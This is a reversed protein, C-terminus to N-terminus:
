RWIPTAINLILSFFVRLDQCRVQIREDLEANVITERDSKMTGLNIHTYPVFKLFLFIELQTSRDLDLHSM